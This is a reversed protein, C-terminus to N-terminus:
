EIGLECLNLYHHRCFMGVQALKECGVVLCKDGNFIKERIYGKAEDMTFAKMQKIEAFFDDKKSLPVNFWEGYHHMSSFISHLYGEKTYADGRRSEVFSDVEVLPIPNGIQFTAIRSKIDKAIGIKYYDSKGHRLIYVTTM